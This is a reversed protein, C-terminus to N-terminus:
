GGYQSALEDRQRTVFAADVPDGHGPVVVDPELALVANLTRPWETPYADEGVSPPAGQEVLDGAFVVGADPVHVVVDGATHGRGPHLLTVSRGGLDVDVRDPVDNTPLVVRAADLDTALNPKGQERYYRAWEARQAETDTRIAERCRPHAWAPCPLFAATGLFHDWHAHTIVVDWPLSTVSRIAAAFEAGHVEDRGSDVVLCRETAVILGLTQDLESYRRAYVGDGLEIWRGDDAM